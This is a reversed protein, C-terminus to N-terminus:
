SSNLTTALTPWLIVVLVALVIFLLCCRKNRAKKQYKEAHELEVVARETYAKAKTIRNEIVDLSEQQIEVLTALDKFLEYVEMVQKELKLIDLHREEIDRVVDQINESLLALKIVDNAQGTAVIKEVEDDTIEANVIKLQRRTREQLNQKFDYSAANYDNMVKAFRRIHTQYLNIRMQAKAGTQDSKADMQKIKDLSDKINQGTRTTESMIKNLSDMIEKRSKENAITRDKEKLKDIKAVNDIILELGKKIPTYLEMHNSIEAKSTDKSEEEVDDTTSIQFEALRDIGSM